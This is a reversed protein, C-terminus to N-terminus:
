AAACEPFWAGGDGFQEFLDERFVILGSLGIGFHRVVPHDHEGNEVIFSGTLFVIRSTIKKWELLHKRFSRRFSPFLVTGFLNGLGHFGNRISERFM